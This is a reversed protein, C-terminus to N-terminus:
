RPLGEGFRALYEQCEALVSALDAHTRPRSGVEVKQMEFRLRGVRVRREEFVPERGALFKGWTGVEEATAERRLATQWLVRVADEPKKGELRTRAYEPSSALAQFLRRPTEKELYAEWTKLAEAEPARGLIGRYADKVLRARNAGGGMKEIEGRYSRAAADGVRNILNEVVRRVVRFPAAGAEFGSVTPELLYLNCGGPKGDKLQLDGGFRVRVMASFGTVGTVIDPITIRCNGRVPTEAQGGLYLIGDQLDLTDVTVKLQRPADHLWVSGSAEIAPLKEDLALGAMEGSYQALHSAALSAAYQRLVKNANGGSAPMVVTPRPMEIDTLSERLAKLAEDKQAKWLATVVGPLVARAGFFPEPDLALVELSVLDADAVSPRALFAGGKHVIATSAKLSVEAKVRVSVETPKDGVIKMKGKLLWEGTASLSASVTDRALKVSRAQVALKKGADIPTITGTFAPSEIDLAKKHELAALLEQRLLASAAKDVEDVPSALLLLIALM